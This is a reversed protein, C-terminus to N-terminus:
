FVKLWVVMNNDNYTDKHVDATGFFVESSNMRGRIKEKVKDEDDKFRYGVYWSNRHFETQVWKDDKNKEKFTGGDYLGYSGKELETIGNGTNPDTYSAKHFQIGAKEINDVYKSLQIDKDYWEHVSHTTKGITVRGDIGVKERNDSYWQVAARKLTQLNALIKAAKATSVVETSSLIMMAALVGIVAIIILLEVLTFGKRRSILRM